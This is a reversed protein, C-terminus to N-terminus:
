RNGSFTHGHAFQGEDEPLGYFADAMDERAIMLPNKIFESTQMFDIFTRKLLAIQRETLQTM